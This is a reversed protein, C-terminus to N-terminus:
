KDSTTGRGLGKIDGYNVKIYTDLIDHNRLEENKKAKQLHNMHM